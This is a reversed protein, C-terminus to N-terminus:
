YLFYILAGIALVFLVLVGLYLALQKAIAADSKGWRPSEVLLSLAAFFAISTSISQFTRILQIGHPAILVKLPIILFGACFCLVVIREKGSAKRGVSILGYAGGVFFVVNAAVV